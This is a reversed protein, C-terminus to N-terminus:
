ACVIKTNEVKYEHPNCRCNFQANAPVFVRETGQCVSFDLVPQCTYYESTYLYFAHDDKLTCGRPIGPCNCIDDMRDAIFAVCVKKENACTKLSVTTSAMTFIIAAFMFLMM